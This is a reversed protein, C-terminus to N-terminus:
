AYRSIKSSWPNQMNVYIHSMKQMKQYINIVSKADRLIEILPKGM